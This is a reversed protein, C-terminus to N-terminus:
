THSGQTVWTAVPKRTQARREGDGMQLSVLPAPPAPPVTVAKQTPQAYCRALGVPSGGFDEHVPGKAEVNTTLRVKGLHPLSPEPMAVRVEPGEAVLVPAPTVEYRLERTEQLSTAATAMTLSPDSPGTCGLLACLRGWDEGVTEGTIMGRDVCQGLMDIIGVFEKRLAPDGTMPVRGLPDEMYSAADRAAEYCLVLDAIWPLATYAGCDRKEQSLSWQLTDVMRALLTALPAGTEEAGLDFVAMCSSIRLRMTEFVHSVSTVFLHRRGNDEEEDLSPSHDCATYANLALAIWPSILHCEGYWAQTPSYTTEGVVIM